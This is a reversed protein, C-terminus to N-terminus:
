GGQLCSRLGPCKESGEVVEIPERDGVGALCLLVLLEGCDEAVPRVLNGLYCLGVWTVWGSWWTPRCGSLVELPFDGM